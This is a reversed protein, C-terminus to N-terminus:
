LVETEVFVVTLSISTIKFLEVPPPPPIPPPTVGGTPLQADDFIKNFLV